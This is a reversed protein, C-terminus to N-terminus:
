QSTCGPNGPLRKFQRLEQCMAARLRKNMRLSSSHRKIWRVWKNGPGYRSTRSRLAQAVRKWMVPVCHPVYPTLKVHFTEQAM